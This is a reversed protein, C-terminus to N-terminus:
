KIKGLEELFDDRESSNIQGNGYLEQVKLKMQSAEGLDKVNKIEAEIFEHARNRIRSILGDDERTLDIAALKKEKYLIRLSNVLPLDDLKKAREIQSFIFEGRKRKILYILENEKSDGIELCLVDIADPLDSESSAEEIKKKFEDFKKYRDGIEEAQLNIQVKVVRNLRIEEDLSAKKAPHSLIGYAVNIKQQRKAIDEESKFTSNKQNELSLQFYRTKIEELDADDALGLVVYSNPVLDSKTTESEAVFASEGSTANLHTIKYSVRFVDVM